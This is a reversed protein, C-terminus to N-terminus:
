RRRENELSNQLSSSNNQYENIKRLTLEIGEELEPHWPQTITHIKLLDQIKSQDFKSELVNRVLRNIKYRRQKSLNSINFKLIDAYIRHLARLSEGFLFNNRRTQTYILDYFSKIYDIDHVRELNNTVMCLRELGIGTVFFSSNASEEIRIINKADSTDGNYVPKWFLKEVTGIELLKQHKKTGRNFFIENRYGWLTPRYLHLALFTDRSADPILNEELIGEELFAQKSFDDEPVVFNFSYKGKTLMAVSGGTCYSVYLSEKPISNQMLFDIFSRIQERYVLGYDVKRAFSLAGYVDALEFVGLYWYGEERHISPFDTLRICSQITSICHDHNFNVYNGYEQLWHYESFSLNFQGPYGEHILPARAVKQTKPYKQCNQVKERLLSYM